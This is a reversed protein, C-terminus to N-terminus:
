RGAELPAAEGALGCLGRLGGPLDPLPPPDVSQRSAHRSCISQEIKFVPGSAFNIQLLCVKTPGASCGCSFLQFGSILAFIIDYAAASTSPLGSVAREVFRCIKKENPYNVLIPSAASDWCIISV